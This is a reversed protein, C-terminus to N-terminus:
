AGARDVGLRHDEVQRRNRRVPGAFFGEFDDIKELFEDMTDPPDMAVLHRAEGVGKGSCIGDRM